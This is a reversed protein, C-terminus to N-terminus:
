IGRCSQIFSFYKYEKLDPVEGLVKGDIARAKIVREMAPITVGGRVALRMYTQLLLSLTGLEDGLFQELNVKFVLYSERKHQFATNKSRFYLELLKNALTARLFMYM